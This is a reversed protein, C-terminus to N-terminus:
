RGTNPESSPNPGVSPRASGNSGNSQRSNAQNNNNNNNNNRGLNQTSQRKSRWKAFISDGKPTKQPVPTSQEGEAPPGIYDPVGPLPIDDMPDNDNDVVQRKRKKAQGPPPPPGYQSNMQFDGYMRRM